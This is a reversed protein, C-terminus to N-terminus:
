LGSGHFDAVVGAPQQVEGVQVAEVNGRAATCAHGDVQRNGFELGNLPVTYTFVHSAFLLWFISGYHFLKKCPYDNAQGHSGQEGTPVVGAEVLTEGLLFIFQVAERVPDCVQFLCHFQQFVGTFVSVHNKAYFFYFVVLLIDYGPGNVKIGAVNDGDVVADLSVFAIFAVLTVFTILAVFAIFTVFTVLTLLTLLTLM